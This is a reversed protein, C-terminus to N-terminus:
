KELAMPAKGGSIKPNRASKSSFSDRNADQLDEIYHTGSYKSDARNIVLGTVEVNLMRLLRSAEEVAERRAQGYGVVMLLSDVMTSLATADASALLAPSDLLVLSFREKLQDILTEMRESGIHERNSLPPGSTIVYLNELRSKQLIQDIDIEKELYSSLGLKNPLRFHSHLRPTSLNGEVVVVPHGARAM